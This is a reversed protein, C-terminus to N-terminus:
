PSTFADVPVNHGMSPFYLTQKVPTRAEGYWIEAEDEQDSDVRWLVRIRSDNRTAFRFLVNRATDLTLPIPSSWIDAGVGRWQEWWQGGKSWWVHIYSGRESTAIAANESDAAAVIQPRL